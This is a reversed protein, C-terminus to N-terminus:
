YETGFIRLEDAYSHYWGALAGGVTWPGSANLNTILVDVVCHNPLRVRMDNTDIKVLNAVGPPNQENDFGPVPGENIRIAFRISTLATPSLTYLTFQQLWGVMSAPLQFRLQPSTVTAGVGAALVMQFDVAKFDQSTLLKEIRPPFVLRQYPSTKAIDARTVPQDLGGLRNRVDPNQLKTVWGFAGGPAMPDGPRPRPM